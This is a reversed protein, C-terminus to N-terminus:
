SIGNNSKNLIKLKTRNKAKINHIEDYYKDLLQNFTYEDIIQRNEEEGNKLTTYFYKRRVDDYSKERIIANDKSLYYCTTQKKLPLKKNWSLLKTNNYQIEEPEYSEITLKKLAGNSDYNRKEFHQSKKTYENNNSTNIVISRTSISFSSDEKLNTLISEHVKSLVPINQNEDNLEKLKEVVLEAVGNKTISLSLPFFYSVKSLDFPQAFYYNCKEKQIILGDISAIALLLKNMFYDNATLYEPIIELVQDIKTNTDM